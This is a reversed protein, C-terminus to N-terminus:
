NLLRTRGHVNTVAIANPFTLHAGGDRGPGRTRRLDEVGAFTPRLAGAADAVHALHQVLIALEQLVGGFLVRDSNREQSRFGSDSAFIPKSM